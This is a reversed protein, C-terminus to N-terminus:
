TGSISDFIPSFDEVTVHKVPDGGAVILEMLVKAGNDALALCEVVALLGTENAEFYKVQPISEPSPALSAAGLQTLCLRLDEQIATEIERDHALAYGFRAALAPINWSCLLGLADAGIAALIRTDIPGDLRM